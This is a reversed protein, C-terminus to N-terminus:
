RLMEKTVRFDGDNVAGKIGLIHTMLPYVNVNDFEPVILARKFAPGHAIFLAAMNPDANDYGHDGRLTHRNPRDLVAQTEIMWGDDPLCILAPVRASTGYHLRKPIDAKRWCQMHEHPAVLAREIETEHGPKPNLGAVTDATILDVSNLDILKDLVVLRGADVATMGHDSVIILNTSQYLNRSKLQEVLRGIAADTSRLADNVQPADPGYDHGQHDVQDFYLTVFQPRQDAPLALWDLVQDVRQDATLKGDFPKYYDPRYRHIQAESGPWFMTATRLGQKDATVWIPEGGDWWRGDRGAERNSISFNGLTADHMTNNIIGHHDPYLGTVLTYHNPFTLTPFVSRLAKARVGDGALASLTPTFGRNLYDARFGDISILILPAYQNRSAASQQVTSCGAFVIVFLTFTLRLPNKM